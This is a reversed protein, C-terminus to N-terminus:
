GKKFQVCVYSHVAPDNRIFQDLRQGQWSNTIKQNMGRVKAKMQYSMIGFHGAGWCLCQTCGTTEGPAEEIKHMQVHIIVCVPKQQAGRTSLEAGM